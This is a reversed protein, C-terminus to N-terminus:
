QKEDRAPEAMPLAADEAEPVAGPDIVFGELHESPYAEYPDAPAAAEASEGSSAEGYPGADVYGQTDAVTAVDTGAEAYAQADTSEDAAAAAAEGEGEAAAPEPQPAYEAFNTGLLGDLEAARAALHADTLVEAMATFAEPMPQLLRLKPIWPRGHLRKYSIRMRLEGAVIGLLKKIRALDKEAKDRQKLREVNEKGLHPPVILRDTEIDRSSRSAIYALREHAERLSQEAKGRVELM